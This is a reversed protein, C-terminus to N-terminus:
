GACTREVADCFLARRGTGVFPALGRANRNEPGAGDEGANGWFASCCVASALRSFQMQGTDKLTWSSWPEDLLRWRTPILVIGRILQDPHRGTCGDSISDLLWQGSGGRNSAVCRASNGAGALRGDRQAVGNGGARNGQNTGPARVGRREGVAVKKNSSQKVGAPRKAAQGM